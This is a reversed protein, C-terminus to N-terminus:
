EDMAVWGPITNFNVVLFDVEQKDSGREGGLKILEIGQIVLVDEDVGENFHKKLADYVQRELMDGKTQRGASM